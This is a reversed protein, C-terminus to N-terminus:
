LFLGRYFSYIIGWNQLVWPVILYLALALLAITIGRRVLPNKIAQLTPVKLRNFIWGFFVVFVIITIFIPLMKMGGWDAQCLSEKSICEPPGFTGNVVNLVVIWGYIGLSIAIAGVGMIKLVWLADENM